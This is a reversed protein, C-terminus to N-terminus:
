PTGTIMPWLGATGAALAMEGVVDNWEAESGDEDRWAWLRTTVLRLDHERTFGIAGHVQHAIRAVAGAAESTRAKAAAIAFQAAVVGDADAARAAADAAASAAAVESAALALQQQIAQFRGIPRGFQVREGAYRVSAALAGRAAGALLCARGLAGRLRLETGAHDGVSAATVAGDVTVTDRPEEAVNTGDTVTLGARDFLLVSDGVLMVVSASRAWPVRRLTGSAREHTRAIDLDGTAVTLPGDPIPIGASTLLWGAQLDTEVLPVRAAHAGAASLVIAADAFSAESGGSGAPLTLRALGTEELTKWLKGDFGTDSSAADAFVSEALEILETNLAATM